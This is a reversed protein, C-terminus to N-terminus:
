TRSVDMALQHFADMGQNVLHIKLTIFTEDKDVKASKDLVWGAPSSDVKEFVISSTPRADCLFFLSALGSLVLLRM